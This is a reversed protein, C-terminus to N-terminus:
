LHSSNLRTSKRDGESRMNVDIWYEEKPQQRPPNKKAEREDDICYHCRRTKASEQAQALTVKPENFYLHGCGGCYPVVTQDDPKQEDAMITRWCLEPILTIM